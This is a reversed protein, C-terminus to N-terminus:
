VIYPKKNTDPEISKLIGNRVIAKVFFDKKCLPCEVYGEGDINGDKPKGGNQVAKNPHFPYPDGLYLEMIENTYGFNLQVYMKASGNCRPCKLDTTIENYTGM